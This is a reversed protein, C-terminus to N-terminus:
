NKLEVVKVLTLCPLILFNVNVDFPQHNCASIISIAVSLIFNVTNLVFLYTLLTTNKILLRFLITLKNEVIENMVDNKCRNRADDILVGGFRGHM